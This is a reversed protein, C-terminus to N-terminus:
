GIPSFFFLVNNQVFKIWQLFYQVFICFFIFVELAIIRFAIALNKAQKWKFTCM